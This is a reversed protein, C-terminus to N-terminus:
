RTLRESRDVASRSRRWIFVYYVPPRPSSSSIFVEHYGFVRAVAAPTEVCVRDRRRLVARRRDCARGDALTSADALAPLFFVVTWGVGLYAGRDGMEAAAGRPRSSSAAAPWCGFSSWCCSRRGGRSSTSLWRTYTGAIRSLDDRPRPSGLGPTDATVLTRRHYSASVSFLLVLCVGYVLLSIQRALNEVGLTVLV